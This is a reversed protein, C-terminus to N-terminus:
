CGPGGGGGDWACGAPDEGVVAEAVGGEFDVADVAPCAGAAHIEPVLFVAAADDRPAFEVLVTALHLELAMESGRLARIEAEAKELSATNLAGNM